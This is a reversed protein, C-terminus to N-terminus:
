KKNPKHLTKINPNKVNDFCIIHESQKARTLGVYLKRKDEEPLSNKVNFFLFVHDFELGKASHITSYIINMDETKINNKLNMIKKNREIEYSILKSKLKTDYNENGKYSIDFKMLEVAMNQMFENFLRKNNLITGYTTFTNIDIIRNKIQSMSDINNDFTFNICLTTFLDTMYDRNPSLNLIKNEKNINDLYNYILDLTYKTETLIAVQKGDKILNKVKNKLDLSNLYKTLNKRFQKLSQEEFYSLKVEKEYLDKYPIKLDDKFHSNLNIKSYQNAKIDTLINNGFDLIRQNSRFNTTLKYQTFAGSSEIMNIANPDAGRFEYLTQSADGVMFISCNYRAAFRMLYIFDFISNDQIEDIIIHKPIIIDRMFNYNLISIVTQLELCTQKIQNLLKSVDCINNKVNWMYNNEMNKCYKLLKIFDNQELIDAFELYKENKTMKLTNCLTKLYSLEQFKYTNSYNYNILSSITISTCNPYREKINDTAANTFSLVLIENENVGIQKLYKIREVIVSSKGCGAGATVLTLKDPSSIALKQEQTYLKDITPKFDSLNAFLPENYLNYICDALYLNKNQMIIENINDKSFYKYFEKIIKNYFNLDIDLHTYYELDELMLNYINEDNKAKEMYEIWINTLKNINHFADYNRKIHNELSYNNIYRKTTTPKTQRVGKDIAKLRYNFDYSQNDYNYYIKYTHKDPALAYPSFIVNKKTIEGEFEWPLFTSTVYLYIKPGTKDFNYGDFKRGRKKAQDFKFPENKINQAVTTLSIDTSYFFKLMNKLEM